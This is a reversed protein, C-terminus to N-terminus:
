LGMQKNIEPIVKKKLEIWSKKTLRTKGIDIYQKKGNKDGLVKVSYGYGESM